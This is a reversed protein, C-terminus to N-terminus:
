RSPMTLGEPRHIYFFIIEKTIKIRKEPSLAPKQNAPRSLDYTDDTSKRLPNGGGTQEPFFSKKM